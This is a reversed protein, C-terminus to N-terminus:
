AQATEASEQVQKAPNDAKWLDCREAVRDGELAHFGIRLFLPSLMDVPCFRGKHWAVPLPRELLQEHKLNAEYATLTYTKQM